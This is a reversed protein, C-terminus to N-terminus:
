WAGAHAQHSHSDSPIIRHNPLASLCVGRGSFGKSYLLGQKWTLETGFPTPVCLRAPAESLQMQEQDGPPVLSM